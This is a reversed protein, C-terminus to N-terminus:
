EEEVFLQIDREGMYKVIHEKGTRDQVVMQWMIKKDYAVREGVKTTTPIFKRTVRDVHGKGVSVVTGYENRYHERMVDPLYLVGVKEPLPDPFVFVRDLTAQYPFDISGCTECRFPLGNLKKESITSDQTDAGCKPCNQM